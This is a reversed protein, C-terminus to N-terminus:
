AKKKKQSVKVSTHVSGNSFLKQTIIVPQGPKAKPPM